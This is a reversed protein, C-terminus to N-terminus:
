KREVLEFIKFETIGPNQPSSRWPEFLSGMESGERLRAIAQLAGEHSFVMPEGAEPLFGCWGNDM